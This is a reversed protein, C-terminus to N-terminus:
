CALVVVNRKKNQGIRIRMKKVMWIFNGVNTQLLHGRSLKTINGRGPVNGQSLWMGGTSHKELSGLHVKENLGEQIGMKFQIKCGVRQGKQQQGEM